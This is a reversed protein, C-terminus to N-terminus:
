KDKRNIEETDEAGRPGRGTKPVVNDVTVVQKRQAAAKIIAADNGLRAELLNTVHFAAEYAFATKFGNLPMIADLMMNTYELVIEDPLDMTKEDFKSDLLRKELEDLKKELKPNEKRKNMEIDGGGNIEELIKRAERLARESKESHYRGDLARTFYSASTKEGSREEIKRCLENLSLEADIMGHRIDKNTSMDASREKKRCKVSNTIQAVIINCRIVAAAGLPKRKGVSPLKKRMVGTYLPARWAAKYPFFTTHFVAKAPTEQDCRLARNGTSM